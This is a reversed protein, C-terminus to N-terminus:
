GSNANRKKYARSHQSVPLTEPNETLGTRHIQQFPTYEPNKMASIPLYFTQELACRGKLAAHSVQDTYVFWSSGAPFAIETKVVSGQYVDDLKMTDHLYLMVHDYASRKTKTVHISHLLSALWSRYPPVRDKFRDLVRPFAEGIHWVRPEQYPNINAFVRLIRKGHVPSSPFADVHLRTDDKRKSSTRGEIEAPRFSTRGIELYPAYEPFYTEVSAKAYAAYRALMAQLSATDTDQTGALKKTIPHYSINKHKGDLTQDTWRSIDETVPFDHVPRYVIKGAELADVYSQRGKRDVTCLVDHM